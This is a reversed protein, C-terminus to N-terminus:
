RIKINMVCEIVSNYESSCKTQSTARDTYTVRHLAMNGSSVPYTVRQLAMNGTSVTYTVRRFAMNSTNVTPGLPRVNLKCAM